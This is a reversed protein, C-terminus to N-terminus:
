SAAPKFRWGNRDPAQLFWPEDQPPEPTIGLLDLRSKVDKAIQPFLCGPRAVYERVAARAYDADIQVMMVFHSVMTERHQEHDIM